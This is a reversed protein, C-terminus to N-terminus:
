IETHINVRLMREVLAASMLRAATPCKRKRLLLRRRVRGCVLCRRILSLPACLRCTAGSGGGTCLTHVSKAHWVCQPAPTGEPERETKTRAREAPKEARERERHEVDARVTCVQRLSSSNITTHLFAHVSVTHTLCTHAAATPAAAPRGRKRLSNFSRKSVTHTHSRGAPRHAGTAHTSSSFFPCHWCVCVGRRHQHSSRNSKYTPFFRQM